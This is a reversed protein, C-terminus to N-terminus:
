GGKLAPILKSTVTNKGEAGLTYTGDTLRVFDKGQMYALPNKVGTVQTIEPLGMSRHSIFLAIRIVDSKVKPFKLLKPLGDPGLVYIDEMGPMVKGEGVEPIVLKTKEITDIVSQVEKLKAELEKVDDFHITISGVKTRITAEFSPMFDSCSKEVKAILHIEYESLTGDSGFRLPLLISQFRALPEFCEPVFDFHSQHDATHHKFLFKCSYHTAKNPLAGVGLLIRTVNRSM